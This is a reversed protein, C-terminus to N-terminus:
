VGKGTEGLSPCVFLCCLVPCTFLDSVKPVTLSPKKSQPSLCIPFPSPSLPLSSLSLPVSLSVLVSVYHSLCLPSLCLFFCLSSLPLSVFCFLRICLGFLFFCGFCSLSLPSILSLSVLLPPFILFPPLCPHSPSLSPMLYILLPLGQPPLFKFGPLLGQGEERGILSGLLTEGGAKTKDEM